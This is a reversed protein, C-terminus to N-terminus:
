YDKSIDFPDQGFVSDQCNQCMGSITYEIRSLDDIFSGPELRVIGDFTDCTTCTGNKICDQRSKGTIATLLSEIQPSKQTPQM